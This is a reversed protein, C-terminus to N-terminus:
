DRETSRRDTSNEIELLFSRSQGSPATRIRVAGLSEIIAACRRQMEPTPPLIDPVMVVTMGAAEAARVGNYSDEFAVCAGPAVDLCAAAALFLDPHPKGRQVDDRTVVAEFRSLIGAQQLHGLAKSRSSSTAVARRLGARDMDRLLELVGPKLKLLGSQVLVEM